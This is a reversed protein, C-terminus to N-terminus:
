WTFSKQPTSHILCITSGPSQKSPSQWSVCSVKLNFQRGWSTKWFAPLLTLYFTGSLLSRERLDTATATFWWTVVPADYRRTLLLPSSKGPSWQTNYHSMLLVPLILFCPSWQCLMTDRLYCLKESFSNKEKKPEWM